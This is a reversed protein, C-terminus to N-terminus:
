PSRLHRLFADIIEVAITAGRAPPAEELEVDMLYLDNAAVVVDLTAGLAILQDSPMTGFAIELIRDTRDM